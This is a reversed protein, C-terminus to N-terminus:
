GSSRPAIISRLAIEVGANRALYVGFSGNLHLLAAVHALSSHYAMRQAM